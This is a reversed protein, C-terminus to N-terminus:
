LEFLFYITGKAWSPIAKRPNMMEEDEDDSTRIQTIDYSNVEDPDKQLTFTSNSAAVVPIQELKSQNVEEAIKQDQNPKIQASSDTKKLFSNVVAKQQLSANKNHQQIM